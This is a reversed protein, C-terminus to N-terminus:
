PMAQDLDEWIKKWLKPPLAQVAACSGARVGQQPTKKIGYKGSLLSGTMDFM